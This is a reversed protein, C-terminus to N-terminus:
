QEIKREKQFDTKSKKFQKSAAQLQTKTSTRPYQTRQSVHPPKWNVNAVKVSRYNCYKVNRQTYWYRRVVDSLM